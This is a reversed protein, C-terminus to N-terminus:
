FSVRIKVLPLMYSSRLIFSSYVFSLRVTFTSQQIDAVETGEKVKSYNAVFKGFYQMKRVGKRDRKGKEGFQLEQAEEM